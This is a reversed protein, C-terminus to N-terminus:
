GGVSGASLERALPRLGHSGGNGHCSYGDGAFTVFHPSRTMGPGHIPTQGEPDSVM